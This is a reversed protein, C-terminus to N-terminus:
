RWVKEDVREFEGVAADFDPDDVWTGIVARLHEDLGTSAIGAVLAVLAVQEISQGSAKARERMESEVEPPLNELVLTM